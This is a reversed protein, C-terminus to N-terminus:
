FLLESDPIHFRPPIRSDRDASGSYNALDRPDVAVQSNCTIHLHDNHRTDSASGKNYGDFAYYHASAKAYRHEYLLVNFANAFSSRGVQGGGFMFEERGSAGGKVSIIDLADGLKHLISGLMPRWMGSIGVESVKSQACATLLIMYIYPHNLGMIEAQSIGTYEGANDCFDSRLKVTLDLPAVIVEGGQSFDRNPSPINEITGSYFPELLEFWSLRMRLPPLLDNPDPSRITGASLANRYRDAEARSIKHHLEAWDVQRPSPRAVEYWSTIGGPVSLTLDGTIWNRIENISYGQTCSRWVLGNLTGTRQLGNGTVMTLPIGEGPSAGVEAKEAITVTTLGEGPATIRYMVSDSANRRWRGESDNAAAGLVIGVTQVGDVSVEVTTVQTAVGAFRAPEGAVKGAHLVELTAADVILYPFNRLNSGYSRGSNRITAVNNIVYKVRQRGQRLTLTECHDESEAATRATANFALRVTVVAHSNEPKSQISQGIPKCEGGALPAISLSVAVQGRTAIATTRGDASSVGEITSHTESGVNTWSMTFRRGSIPNNQQDVLRFCLFHLAPRQAPKKTLQQPAAQTM